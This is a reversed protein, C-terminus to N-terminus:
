MGMFQSASPMQGATSKDIKFQPVAQIYITFFIEEVADRRKAWSASAEWCHLHWNVTYRQDLLSIQMLDYNRYASVSFEDTFNFTVGTSFYITDPLATVMKHGTADLKNNIYNTSFFANWFNKQTDSLQATIGISKVANSFISYSSQASLSYENYSASSTLSLLSFRDLDNIVEARSPLMNYTATGSYRLIGLTGYVNATLMNSTYGSYKLETLRNLQKAMSHSVSATLWGFPLLDAMLTEGNGQTVTWVGGPVAEPKEDNLWGASLSANGSLSFIWLRPLSLTLRPSINANDYYYGALGNYGRNFYTDHSYYLSFFSSLPPFSINTAMMSYRLNPMARYQTVYKSTLTNLRETDALTIGISHNGFSSSLSLDYRQELSDPNEGLFDKSLDKDSLASINIGARTYQGLGQLHSFDVQWRDKKSIKDFMYFSNISGTSDQNFGYKSNLSYMNGQKERYDVSVTGSNFVDVFYNYGLGAYWGSIDNWGFRFDFPAKNTKLSQVYYPFYAVPIRGLYITTHWTEIKDNIYIYVMGAEMRFHPSEKDCTTFVPTELEIKEGEKKMKKGSCIWPKKEVRVNESYAKNNKFNYFIKDTLINVDGQKLNINGEATVTGSQANINARDAFLVADNQKIVINGEALIMSTENDYTLEDATVYVPLLTNAKSDAPLTIGTYSYDAPASFLLIPFLLLFVTFFYRTLKKKGDFGEAKKHNNPKQM